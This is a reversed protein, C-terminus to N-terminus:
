FMLRTWAARWTGLSHSVVSRLWHRISVRLHRDQRNLAREDDPIRRTAVRLRRVEIRCEGALDGSLLYDFM